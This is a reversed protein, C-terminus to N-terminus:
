HTLRVAAPFTRYEAELAAPRAEQGGRRREAEALQVMHRHRDAAAGPGRKLQGAEVNAMRRGAPRTREADLIAQAGGGLPPSAAYPNGPKVPIAARQARRRDTIYRQIRATTWQTDARRRTDLDRSIQDYAQLVEAARRQAAERYFADYYRTEETTRQYAM